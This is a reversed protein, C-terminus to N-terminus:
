IMTFESERPTLCLVQPAVLARSVVLRYTRPAVVVSFTMLLPRFVVDSVPPIVTVLKRGTIITMM